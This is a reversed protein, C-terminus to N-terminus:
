SPTSFVPIILGLSVGDRLSEIEATKRQICGLLENAPKRQLELVIDWNRRVVKTAPEGGWYRFNQSTDTALAELDSVSASIWESFIRLLQLLEFYFESRKLTVDDYM